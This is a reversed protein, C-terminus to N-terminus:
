KPKRKMEFLFTTQFDAQFEKPRSSESGFCITAKDGDIKYIGLAQFGKANPSDDSVKFDIAKAPKAEADLKIKIEYARSPTKISLADGKFNWTSEGSDDKSVWEGQLNKLDGTIEKKPEDAAVTGSLAVGAIVALLRAPTKLFM